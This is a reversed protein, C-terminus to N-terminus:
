SRSFRKPEREDRILRDLAAEGNERAARESPHLRDSRELLKGHKRIAWDFHRARKESPLITLTYPYTTNDDSM